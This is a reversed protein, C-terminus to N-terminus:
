ITWSQIMAGYKAAQADVDLYKETMAVSSHGLLHQVARIDGTANLFLNASTRRLTHSGKGVLDTEGVDRLLEKVRNRMGTQKASHNLPWDATMRYPLGKHFGRNKLAPVVFDSPKAGNNLEHASWDLLITRLETPMLMTIEDRVKSRFVTLIGSDFDIHHWKLGTVESGRCGTFLLLAVTVGDRPHIEFALKLMERAQDASIPKRKSRAVVTKANRIGTAFNTKTYGTDILWQAISRLASRYTNLTAEGAGAQRRAHLAASAHGQNLRGIPLSSGAVREVENLILTYRERSSKSLQLFHDTIKFAALATRVTEPM